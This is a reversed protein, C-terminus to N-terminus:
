RRHRPLTRPSSSHPCLEICCSIARRTPLVVVGDSRVACEAVQGRTFVDGLTLVLPDVFRSSEAFSRDVFPGLTVDTVQRVAEMKVDPSFARRFKKM